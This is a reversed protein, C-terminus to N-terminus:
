STMVNGDMEMSNSVGSLANSNKVAKVKKELDKISEKVSKIKKDFENVEEETYTAGCASCIFCLIFLHIATKM